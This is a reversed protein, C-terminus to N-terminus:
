INSQLFFFKFIGIRTQEDEITDVVVTLRQKIPLNLFSDNQQRLDIQEILELM